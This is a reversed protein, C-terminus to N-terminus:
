FLFRLLLIRGVGLSRRRFPLSTKPVQDVLLQQEFLALIQANGRVGFHDLPERIRLSIFSSHHLVPFAAAPCPMENSSKLCFRFFWIM